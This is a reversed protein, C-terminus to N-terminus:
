QMMGLERQLVGQCVCVCQMMGLERQLVGQCVCWVCQMM